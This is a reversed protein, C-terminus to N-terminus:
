QIIQKNKKKKSKKKGEKPLSAIGQLQILYLFIHLSPFQSLHLPFTARLFLIHDQSFISDKEYREFKIM